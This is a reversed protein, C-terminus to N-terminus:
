SKSFTTVRPAGVLDPILTGGRLREARFFGQLSIELWGLITEREMKLLALTFRFLSDSMM